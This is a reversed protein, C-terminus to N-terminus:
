FGLPHSPSSATILVSLPAEGTTTETNPLVAGVLGGCLAAVVMTLAYRSFVPWAPRRWWPRAAPLRDIRAFVASTLGQLRAPTIEPPAVARRM